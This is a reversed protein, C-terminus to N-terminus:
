TCSQIWRNEVLQFTKYFKSVSTNLVTSTFLRLLSLKSRNLMPFVLYTTNKMKIVMNKMRTNLSYKLSCKPVAVHLILAALIHFVNSCSRYCCICTLKLKVNQKQLYQERHSKLCQPFYRFFLTKSVITWTILCEM